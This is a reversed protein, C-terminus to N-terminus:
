LVVTELLVTGGVLTDRRLVAETSRLDDGWRAETSGKGCVKQQVKEVCRRWYVGCVQALVSWVGPGICQQCIAVSRVWVDLAGLAALGGAGSVALGVLRGLVADAARLNSEGAPV